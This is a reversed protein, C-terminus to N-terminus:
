TMRSTLCGYCVSGMLARHKGCNICLPRNGLAASITKALTDGAELRVAEVIADDLTTCKSAFARVKEDPYGRYRGRLASFLHFSEDKEPFARKSAFYSKEIDRVAEMRILKEEPSEAIIREYELETRVREYNTEPLAPVL